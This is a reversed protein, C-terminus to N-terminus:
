RGSLEEIIDICDSLVSRIKPFRESKVGPADSYLRRNVEIMVSIVRPDKEYFEMPVITGAFPSDVNVSYGRESLLRVLKDTFVEPTHYDSTGICFDLRDAAQDIEYPLATPYFSHCDVILCHGYKELKEEVAQSFAQHHRDYYRALIEEKEKETVTRLKRLDSTSEYTVGMGISAMIEDKDDRFREVDCVLRSIPFVIKDRGCDFLEDCFWDTMVAIEHPLKSSDFSSIFRAPIVTSAHPIHLLTSNKM